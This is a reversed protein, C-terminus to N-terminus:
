RRPQEGLRSETTANREAALREARSRVAESMESFGRRLTSGLLARVVPTLWGALRMHSHYRTRNGPLPELDHSRRSQLASLPFPKMRYAFHKGPVMETMWERQDRPAGRLKVRLDIPDGPVLTSRCEVVFPNWDGYRPLDTLVEWVVSPPADIELVHEIEM